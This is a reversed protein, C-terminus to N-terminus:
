SHYKEGFAIASMVVKGVMAYIRATFGSIQALAIKLSVGPYKNGIITIAVALDCILYISM